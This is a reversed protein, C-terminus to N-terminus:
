VVERALQRAKLSHRGLTWFWQVEEGRGRRSWGGKTEMAAVHRPTRSRIGSLRERGKASVGQM